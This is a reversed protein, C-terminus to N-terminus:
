GDGRGGDRMVWYAALKLAFTALDHEWPGGRRLEYPPTGCTNLGFRTTVACTFGAEGLLRQVADTYDEPRGNPYAFARPAFSCASKIMM